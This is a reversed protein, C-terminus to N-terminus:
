ACLQKYKRHWKARIAARDANLYRQRVEDKVRERIERVKYAYDCAVWVEELLALLALAEDFREANIMELLHNKQHVLANDLDVPHRLRRDYTAPNAPLTPHLRAVLDAADHLDTESIFDHDCM